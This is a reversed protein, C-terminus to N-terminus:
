TLPFLKNTAGSIATYMANDYAVLPATCLWQKVIRSTRIGAIKGGLYAETADGALAAATTRGLQGGIANEPPIYRETLSSSLHLGFRQVLALSLIGAFNLQDVKGEPLTKRLGWQAFSTVLSSGISCRVIHGAWQRNSSLRPKMNILDLDQLFPFTALDIATMATDYLVCQNDWIATSDTFTTFSVTMHRLLGFASGACLRRLLKRRALLIKEERVELREKESGSRLVDPVLRTFNALVSSAVQM